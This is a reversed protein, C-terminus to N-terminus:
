SIEEVGVSNSQERMERRLVDEMWWEGLCEEEVGNRRKERERREREERVGQESV